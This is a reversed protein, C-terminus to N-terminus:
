QHSGNMYQTSLPPIVFNHVFPLNVPTFQFLSSLSQESYVEAELCLHLDNWM